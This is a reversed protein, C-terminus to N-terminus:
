YIFARGTHAVTGSTHRWASVRVCTNECQPPKDDWVAPLGDHLPMVVEDTQAEVFFIPSEITSYSAAAFLCEWPTAARPGVACRTPVFADWLPYYAELAAYSWPIYQV